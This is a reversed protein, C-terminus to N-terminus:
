RVILLNSNAMLETHGHPSKWSDLDKHHSVMGGRYFVLTYSSIHNKTLSPAFLGHVWLRCIMKYRNVLYYSLLSKIQLSSDVQLISDVLAISKMVFKDIHWVFM